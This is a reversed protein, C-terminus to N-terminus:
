KKGKSVKKEGEAKGSGRHKMRDQFKKAKCHSKM